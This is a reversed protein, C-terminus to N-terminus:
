TSHSAILGRPTVARCASTKLVGTSPHSQKLSLPRPWGPPVEHGDRPGRSKAGPIAKEGQFGIGVARPAGPTVSPERGGGGSVLAM